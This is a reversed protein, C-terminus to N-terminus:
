EEAKELEAAKEKLAAEGGGAATEEPKPSDTNEVM